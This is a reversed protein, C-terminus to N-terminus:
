SVYTSRLVKQSMFPKITRITYCAKNLRPILESIHHKWNLTADITLGWFKIRKATAITTNSYLIQKNNEKNEKTQFQLFYTKDYNLILLNSHFWKNVKNFVENVKHRLESDDHNTVIFSTDDAFLIPISKDIISKPLEEFSLKM